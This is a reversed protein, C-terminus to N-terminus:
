LPKCLYVQASRAPLYLKLDHLFSGANSEQEISHHIVSPDIRGHGGYMAADSDLVLEYAGAFVHHLTYHDYSQTPSFNFVFLLHGRIFAMLQDEGHTLVGQLPKEMFPTHQQLLSLVDKDWRALYQFKLNSDSALSWLRKAHAYSYHNELRPFDIWEPHGFENGMFNLYGGGATAITALKIMNTLAIGREISLTHDGLHMHTYIDADVFRFFLTKDGVLAQDHSEVYSINKERSRRNTLEHWIAGTHWQEDPLEKSMKIWFDPINMALRYDFGYGGVSNPEALLPMGSVEEAITIAQPAVEHILRNALALYALADVDVENTFYDPYGTFAKGLGHHTYLMSTVGDFRFGDFKFEELWYKCNSLLFHLVWDKSYDFCYSDWLSHFGRAGQHFFLTTSGDYKGLGEVENRVAHSHVLDMIVVLGLRHAEDILACLEDPTGFRSSPAFFNAVHYGFSGYYPHEQIAMIQIANYGAKAIRPLVDKTFETYSSVKEEQSSMGIHCEYIYLDKPPEPAQFKWRYPTKPSWVQASFIFTKPDQVVRRAYAPIREAKQIVGNEQWQMQLKYHMGHALQHPKLHLEWVGNGLPTFATQESPQWGTGDSLLFIAVANPAYERLVWGNSTSHLGFYLHGNAFQVLTGHADEIQKHKQEIAQQRQAIVSSFPELWPDGKLVTKTIESLSSFHKM